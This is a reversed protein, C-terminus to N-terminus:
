AAKSSENAKEADVCREYCAIYGAADVISDHHNPSNVLRAQKLGVMMLAVEKATIKEGPKLKTLLIGMWILATREFNVSPHDYTKERDGYVIRKAEDLVTDPVSALAKQIIPDPM